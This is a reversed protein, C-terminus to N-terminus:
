RQEEETGTRSTDDDLFCGAGRGQSKVGKPSWGIDM